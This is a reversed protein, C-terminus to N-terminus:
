STEHDRWKNIAIILLAAAFTALSLLQSINLGALIPPSEQPTDRLFELLFRGAGYGALYVATLFGPFLKFKRISWPIVFLLIGEVFAEYLQNPHRLAIELSDPFYMGFGSSTIKGYLEGNAFNGLRGLSYGLAVGPVLLDSLKLFGMKKLKSFVYLGLVFGLLGGYYSMGHLGSFQWGNDPEFPLFIQAPHSSFFDWSYFLVQGLRGGVIIAITLWLLLETLDDASIFTLRESKIRYRTIALVVLFAAIYSLSYWSVPFGFIHFAVPDIKEPLHQWAYILHNLSATNM